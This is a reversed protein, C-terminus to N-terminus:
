AFEQLLAKSLGPPHVAVPAEGRFAGISLCGSRARLGVRVWATLVRLVVGGPANTRSLAQAGRARGMDSARWPWSMWEATSAVAWCIRPLSSSALVLVHSLFHWWRVGWGLAPAVPVVTRCCSRCAHCRRGPRFGLRPQSGTRGRLGGVRVRPQRASGSCALALRPSGWPPLPSIPVASRLSPYAPLPAAM